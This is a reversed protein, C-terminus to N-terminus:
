RATSTPIEKSTSATRPELEDWAEDVNDAVFVTTPAGFRFVADRRARARQRPMDIGFRDYEEARHGVGFAYSVRGNSIIDLVCIVEALRIPDWFPIPVAALLIALRRMRAAIASALIRPMPLHGDDTGHHESLVAIVAGRTEAWACMDIAAAYLDTAAGQTLRMDFRLTFM